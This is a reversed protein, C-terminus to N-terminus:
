LYIGILTEVPESLLEHVLFHVSTLLKMAPELLNAELHIAHRIAYVNISQSGVRSSILKVLFRILQHNHNNIKEIRVKLM